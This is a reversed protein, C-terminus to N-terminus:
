AHVWGRVEQQGGTGHRVVMLTRLPETPQRQLAASLEWPAGPADGLRVSFPKRRVILEAGPELAARRGQCQAYGRDAVAVAGPAWPCQTLTEGPHGDSGWVEVFQLALLDMASHLRQDTGPAGPAQRRSGDMVVFRCGTSRTDVPSLPLMRRLMAPVWPGCVCLREAVAPATIAAELATLTGAVERLSTDLGWYFFVLRLLHEPTKVKTARVFAQCERAMQATEPPLDPLLEEFLPDPDTLPLQM